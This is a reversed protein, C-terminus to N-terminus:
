RAEVQSAADGTRVLRVTLFALPRSPAVKLEVILRGQTSRSAAHEAALRHRGPLERGAHAGAFAGLEFLRTLLAEFGRQVARRLPDDNPEFVYAAGHLLAVRRLLSLLRRM